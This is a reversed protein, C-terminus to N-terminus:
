TSREVGFAARCAALLMTPDPRSLRVSLRTTDFVMDGWVLASDLVSVRADGEAAFQGNLYVTRGNGMDMADGFLPMVGHVTKRGM